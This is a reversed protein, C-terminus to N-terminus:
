EEDPDEKPVYYDWSLIEKKRKETLGYPEIDNEKEYTLMEELCVRARGKIYAIRDNIEDLEQQLKKTKKKKLKKEVEVKEEERDKLSIAGNVCSITKRYDGYGPPKATALNYVAWTLSTLLMVTAITFEFKRSKKKEEM